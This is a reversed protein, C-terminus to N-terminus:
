DFVVSGEDLIVKGDVTITPNSFMMDIHLTLDNGSENNGLAVHVYGMCGEDELMRGNLTADPNLGVGIEGIQYIRRDGIEELVKKLVEAQEGGSIGTVFSDKIEIRIPEGKKILGLRPHTISGDVYVVGNATYPMAGTACEIDPPSSTVGKKLSMGYQPFVKHGKISATYDTGLKSTIHVRDGGEFGAAIQDVYKRNAEFDTYLGGSKLMEISYDCCNCCRAGAANARARAQSHSLSAKTARFIVDAKLMAAAVTDTPEEGHMYRANMLTLTRNPFGEAADWLALGIDMSQDDTVILINEDKQCNSCTTLLTKCAEYMVKERDKFWSM